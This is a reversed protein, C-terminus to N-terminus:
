CIPVFHALNISFRGYICGVLNRNMQVLHVSIQYSAGISPETYLKRFVSHFTLSVSEAWQAELKEIFYSLVWGILFLFQRHHGYKNVYWSSILLNISVKWLHKRGLKQENLPSSKKLFRGILFLFQIQHGHKNVSRSSILLRWLPCEM